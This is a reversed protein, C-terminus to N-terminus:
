SINSIVLAVIAITSKRARGTLTKLSTGRAQSRARQGVYLMLRYFDSKNTYDINGEARKFDNMVWDSDKELQKGIAEMAYTSLHISLETAIDDVDPLSVPVSGTEDDTEELAFGMAQDAEGNGINYVMSRVSSWERVVFLDKDPKFSDEDLGMSTALREINEPTHEDLTAGINPNAARIEVRQAETLDGMKFNHSPMYGGGKIGKIRNDKLLAIIYPHYRSTPKNNNRGKMEGIVDNADLIFTLHPSWYTKGAKKVPQRLSLITDDSTARPSNGCHGMAKAEASCSARKLHFWKWGDPFSMFIEDEDDPSPTVVRRESEQKESISDEIKKFEQELQEPTEYAFIKDHIPKDTLSMTHELDRKLSAMTQPIDKVTIPNKKSYAAIDQNLLAKIKRLRGTVQM